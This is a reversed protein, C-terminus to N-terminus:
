RDPTPLALIKSILVDRSPATKEWRVLEEGQWELITTPVDLANRLSGEVLGEATDLDFYRITLDSRTSLEDICSQIVARTEDCIPCDKKSFITVVVEGSQSESTRIINTGFRSQASRLKDPDIRCSETPCVTGSSDKNRKGSM